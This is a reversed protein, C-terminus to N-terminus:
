VSKQGIPFGDMSDEVGEELDICSFDLRGPLKRLPTEIENTNIVPKVV